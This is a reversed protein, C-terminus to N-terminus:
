GDCGCNPARAAVWRTQGAGHSLPVLASSSCPASGSPLTGPRWSEILMPVLGLWWAFTVLMFFGTMALKPREIVADSREAPTMTSM